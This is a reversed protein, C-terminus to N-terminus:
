DLASYFREDYLAGRIPFLKQRFARTHEAMAHADAATRDTWEEVVTFHNARDAQQLIEYEINGADKATDTSMARLAALCAETGPPIVDVHTVVYLAGAKNDSPGKELYLDKDIRVDPPAEQIAVLQDHFQLTGASLTHVALAGKDRWAEIIVFRTPRAIEALVDFRLSGDEARSADRYRRLLASGSEVSNPMVEVYTAVYVADDLARASRGFTLATLTLGFAAALTVHSFRRV